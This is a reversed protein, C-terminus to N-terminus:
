NNKSTDSLKEGATIYDSYNNVNSLEKLYTSTNKNPLLDYLSSIPQIVIEFNTNYQMKLIEAM